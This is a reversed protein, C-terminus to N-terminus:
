NGIPLRICCADYAVVAPQDSETVVCVRTSGNGRAQMAMEVLWTSQEASRHALVPQPLLGPLPL